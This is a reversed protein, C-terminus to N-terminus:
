PEGVAKSVDGLFCEEAARILSYQCDSGVAQDMGHTIARGLDQDTEASLGVRDGHHHLLGSVPDWRREPLFHFRQEGAQPAVHACAM